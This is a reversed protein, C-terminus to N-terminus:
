FSISAHIIINEYEWVWVKFKVRVKFKKLCNIDDICNKLKNM